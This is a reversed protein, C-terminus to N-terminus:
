AIIDDLKIIPMVALPLGTSGDVVKGEVTHNFDLTVAAGEKLDHVEMVLPQNLKKAKKLKDVLDNYAEHSVAITKERFFAMALTVTHRKGDVYDSKTFEVIQGKPADSVAAKLKDDLEKVYAPLEFMDRIMDETPSSMGVLNSLRGYVQKRNKEDGKAADYLFTKAEKGNDVTVEFMQRKIDSKYGTIFGVSREIDNKTKVTVDNIVYNKREAKTTAM